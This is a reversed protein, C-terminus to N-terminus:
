EINQVQERIKELESKIEVVATSIEFSNSKSAITNAERNIEQLLFDLKRGIPEKKEIISLFSKLHNSLRVLEETINVREAYLAIETAIRDSDIVGIKYKEIHDNLEKAYNEPIEHALKSITEKQEDIINIRKVFDKKLAEGEASRSEVLTDVAEKIASEFYKWQEELDIEAEEAKIVDPYRAINIISIDDNVGPFDNKIQNLIQYYEGALEKDYHLSVDESGFKETKIFVDIRGRNVKESILNRIKEEFASYRRPLRINFDRYRHNITKIEVDIVLNESRYEGRGFGTMSKM